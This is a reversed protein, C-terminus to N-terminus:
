ITRSFTTSLYSPFQPQPAKKLVHNIWAVREHNIIEFEWICPALGDGSIKVFEDLKNYDTKFIHTNLMNDGVWWNILSFIGETGAHLILFGIHNHDSNFKNKLKLWSHLQHKVNDYFDENNFKDEKTITYVKIQWDDIKLHEKFEIHRPRYESMDM